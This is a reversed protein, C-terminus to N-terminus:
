SSTHIMMLKPTSIEHTGLFAIYHVKSLDRDNNGIKPM